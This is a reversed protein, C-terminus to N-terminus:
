PNYPVRLHRCIIADSFLENFVHSHFEGGNNSRLAHINNGKQNEIFAKFEKFKGFTESKAKLFYILSKRYFHDSFLVYYLYGSLSPSLM